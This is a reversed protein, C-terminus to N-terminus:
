EAGKSQGWLEKDILTTEIARVVQESIRPDLADPHPSGFQGADNDFYKGSSDAFEESLAARVLIEAGIGIDHGARGFGEKVMKTALLSGPNVAVFVLDRYKPSLAMVRSWTTLALKSQAYADFQDPLRARGALAQLNVPSQAASSLSVVRAGPGLKPMLIRTLLVPALTNVAFRIDLGEQTISDNTRFVGANNIVVHLRGQSESIAQGLARVEAMLSLDALYSEISGAGSVGSVTEKAAELKDPDRGHLLVHHGQSYLLKSAELGIGDTSGTVLITKKV